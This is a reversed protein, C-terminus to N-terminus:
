HKQSPNMPYVHKGHLGSSMLDIGLVGRHCLHAWMCLHM